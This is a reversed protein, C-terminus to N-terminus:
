GGLPFDALTLSDGAVFEHHSFQRDLIEWLEAPKKQGENNARM